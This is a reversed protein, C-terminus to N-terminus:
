GAPVIYSRRMWGLVRDAAQEAEPEGHLAHVARVQEAISPDPAILGMGWSTFSRGYVTERRAVVVEDHRPDATISAMVEAIGQGPGELVQAFYAGTYIMAGTLDHARNRVAAVDLITRLQEAASSEPLRSLSVYLLSEM